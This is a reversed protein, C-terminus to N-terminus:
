KNSKGNKNKSSQLLKEIGQYTEFNSLIMHLYLWEKMNDEIYQDRNSTASHDSM